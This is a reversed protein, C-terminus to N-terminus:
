GSDTLTADSRSDTEAFYRHWLKPFSEVLSHIEADQVFGKLPGDVLVWRASAAGLEFLAAPRNGYFTQVLQDHFVLFDEIPILSNATIPRRFFPRALAVDRFFVRWAETGFERGILTKRTLISTGSVKM